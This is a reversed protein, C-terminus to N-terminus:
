WMDHADPKTHRGNYLLCDSSIRYMNYHKHSRNCVKEKKKLSSSLAPSASFLLTGSFFPCMSWSPGGSSIRANKPWGKAAAVVDLLPSSVWADAAARKCSYMLKGAKSLLPIFIPSFSWKRWSSILYSKTNTGYIRRYECEWVEFTLYKITKYVLNVVYPLTVDSHIKSAGHYNNQDLTCRTPNFCLVRRSTRGTTKILFNVCNLPGQTGSQKYVLM